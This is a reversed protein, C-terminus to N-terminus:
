LRGTSHQQSGQTDSMSVMVATESEQLRQMREKDDDTAFDIKAKETMKEQTWLHRIVGGQILGHLLAAWILIHQPTSGRLPLAFVICAVLSALPWLWAGHVRKWLWVTQVLPAPLLLSMVTLMTPWMAGGSVNTFTFYTIITGILTYLMWGRMSHKLLREVVQVQLLSAVLLVTSIGVINTQMSSLARAFADIEFLFIATGWAAGYTCAWLGIFPLTGAQWFSDRKAKTKRM